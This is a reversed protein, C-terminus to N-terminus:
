SYGCANLAGPNTRRRLYECICCINPERVIEAFPRTCIQRFVQMSWKALPRGINITAIGSQAHRDISCGIARVIPNM